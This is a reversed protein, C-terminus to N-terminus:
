YKHHLGINILLGELYFWVQRHFAKFMYPPNRSSAQREQRILEPAKEWTRTHFAAKLFGETM